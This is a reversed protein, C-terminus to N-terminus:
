KYSSHLIIHETNFFCIKIMQSYQNTVKFLSFFNHLLLKSLISVEM